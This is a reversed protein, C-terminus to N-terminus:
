GFCLSRELEKSLVNAFRQLVFLTQINRMMDFLELYMNETM